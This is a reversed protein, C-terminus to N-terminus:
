MERRDRMRGEVGLKSGVGGMGGDEWTDMRDGLPGARGRWVEAVFTTKKLNKFKTDM